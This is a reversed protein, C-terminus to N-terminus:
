AQLLEDSEIRFRRDIEERERASLPADNELVLRDVRDIEDQVRGMAAIDRLSARSRERHAARDAEDRAILEAAVQEEQERELLDQVAPLFCVPTANREKGRREASWLSLHEM